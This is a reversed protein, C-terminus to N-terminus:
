LCHALAAVFTLLGFVAGVFVSVTFIAEATGKFSKKAWYTKRLLNVLATFFAALFGSVLAFMFLSVGIAKLM